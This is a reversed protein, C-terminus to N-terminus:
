KTQYMDEIVPLSHSAPLTVVTCVGTGGEPETKRRCIDEEAQRDPSHKGDKVREEPSGDSILKRQGIRQGRWKQEYKIYTCIRMKGKIFWSPIENKTILSSKMDFKLSNTRIQTKCRIYEILDQLQCMKAVM